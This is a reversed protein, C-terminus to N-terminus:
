NSVAFLMISAHVCIHVNEEFGHCNLIWFAHFLSYNYNLRAGLEHSPCVNFFRLSKTPGSCLRVLFTHVWYKYNQAIIADTNPEPM